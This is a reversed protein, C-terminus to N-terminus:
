LPETRTARTKPDHAQFRETIPIGFEMIGERTKLTVDGNIVDQLDADLKAHALTPYSLQVIYECQVNM